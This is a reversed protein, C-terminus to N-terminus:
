KPAYRTIWPVRDFDSDHSALNALGHQQMMAVILADGSLLENQQSIGSAASLQPWAVSLVQIGLLPVDALAERFRGLKRIETPHRRLRQAIGQVPWGFALIAEITMLRHAVDCMVHTSSFALIEKREIRKVFDTCAAGFQLDAAFHYVLVNADLFVSDGDALDAFIM